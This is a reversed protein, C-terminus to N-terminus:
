SVLERVLAVLGALGTGSASIVLDVSGRLVSVLGGARTAWAPAGLDRLAIVGASRGLAERAAVFEAPTVPAVFSVTIPAV